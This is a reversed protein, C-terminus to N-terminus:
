VSPSVVILHFSGPLMPPRGGAAPPPGYTAAPLYLKGTKPDVMGTRAGHETTVVQIIKADAGDGVKIVDLVGDGGCPIFALGRVPDFIVADPGKGIALTALILPPIIRSMKM